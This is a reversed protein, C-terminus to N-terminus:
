GVKVTKTATATVTVTSGAVPAAGSSSAAGLIAAMILIILSLICAGIVMAQKSTSWDGNVPQSPEGPVTM